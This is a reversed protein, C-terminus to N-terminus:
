RAAIALNIALQQIEGPVSKARDSRTPAPDLGNTVKNVVVKTKVIPHSSRVAGRQVGELLLYTNAAIKGMEGDSQAPAEINRGSIDGPVESIDTYRRKGIRHIEAGPKFDIQAPTPVTEICPVILGPDTPNSDSSSAVSHIHGDRHYEPTV